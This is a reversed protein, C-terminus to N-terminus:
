SGEAKTFYIKWVLGIHFMINLYQAHTSRQLQEYHHIYISFSSVTSLNHDNWIWQQFSIEWMKMQLQLDVNYELAPFRLSIGPKTTRSRYIWMGKIKWFICIFALFAGDRLNLNFIIGYYIVFDDLGNFGKFCLSLYIGGTKLM